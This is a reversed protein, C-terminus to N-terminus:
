TISVSEDQMAVKLFPNFILLTGAVFQNHQLDETYITTAGAQLASALM